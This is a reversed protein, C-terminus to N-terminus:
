PVSAECWNLGAIPLNHRAAILEATPRDICQEITPAYRVSM